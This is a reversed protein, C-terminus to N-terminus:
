SSATGKRHVRDDEALAAVSEMAPLAALLADREGPDLRDLVDAIRETRVARRQALSSRGEDSIHILVVRGDHPDTARGVLGAAQLRSILQTMAPQTVGERGALDTLRCPGSRELTALTAAATLSYEAPPSMRRVLRTLRELAAAVAGAAGEEVARDAGAPTGPAPPNDM